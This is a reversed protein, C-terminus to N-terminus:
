TVTVLVVSENHTAKKNQSESSNIRQNLVDDDRFSDLNNEHFFETKDITSEVTKGVVAFLEKGKATKARAPEITVHANVSVSISNSENKCSIKGSNIPGQESKNEQKKQKNILSKYKNGAGEDPVDYSIKPKEKNNEEFPKRDPAKKSSVADNKPSVTEEKSAGDTLIPLEVDDTNPTSTRRISKSEVTDSADIKSEDKDEILDPMNKQEPKSFAGLAAIEKLAESNLSENEKNKSSWLLNNLKDHTTLAPETNLVSKKLGDSKSDPNKKSSPGAKDQTNKTEAEPDSQISSLAASTALKGEVGDTINKLIKEIRTKIMERLKKLKSGSKTRLLEYVEPNEAIM